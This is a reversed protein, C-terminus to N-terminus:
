VKQISCVYGLQCNTRYLGPLVCYVHNGATVYLVTILFFLVVKLVYKLKRLTSFSRSLYSLSIKSFISGKRESIHKMTPSTVTCADDILTGRRFRMRNLLTQENMVNNIQKAVQEKIKRAAEAIKYTRRKEMSTAVVASPKTVGDYMKETTSRLVAFFLNPYCFLIFFVLNALGTM